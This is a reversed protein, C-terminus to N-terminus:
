YVKGVKEKWAARFCRSSLPSVTVGFFMVGFRSYMLRDIEMLLPASLSLLFRALFIDSDDDLCSEVEFSGDVDEDVEPPADLTMSGFGIRAFANFPIRSARLIRIAFAPSMLNALLSRSLTFQQSRWLLHKQPILYLKTLIKRVNHGNSQFICPSFTDLDQTSDLFSLFM